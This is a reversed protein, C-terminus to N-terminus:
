IVKVFYYLYNSPGSQKWLHLHACVLMTYCFLICVCIYKKLSTGMAPRMSNKPALQYLKKCVYHTAVFLGDNGISVNVSNATPDITAGNTPNTLTVTFVQRQM